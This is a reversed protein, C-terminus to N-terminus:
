VTSPRGGTVVVKGEKCKGMIDVDELEDRM